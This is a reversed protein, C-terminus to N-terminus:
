TLKMEIALSEPKIAGICVLKDYTELGQFSDIVDLEEKSMESSSKGYNPPLWRKRQAAFQNFRRLIGEDKFTLHATGKKYLNVIFFESEIQKTEKNKLAFKIAESMKLYSDGGLPFKKVPEFYAIVKDIEDLERESSYSLSYSGYSIYNFGPLICKKNAKHASNTKWGNFHLINKKTEPYWSHQRTMKDFVDVVAEKIAFDYNNHLRAIFERLNKESFEMSTNRQLQAQYDSRRKATMKETIAPHDLLDLWYKRRLNKLYKSILVPIETEQDHDRADHSFVSLSLQDNFHKSSKAYQLIFKIGEERSVNYRSIVADVTESKVLGTEEEIINAHFKDEIVEPDLGFFDEVTRNINIYILAVKVNTKREADVFADEIIEVDANLEQLKRQLEKRKNSYPNLITEANLICVIQGNITINIAHLLHEDGNSFPPNMLILDFHDGGAYELFDNDLVKANLDVKDNRYPTSVKLSEIVACLERSKEIAYFEITRGSTRRNRAAVLLDGKGASPDLVSGVESFKKVKALMKDALVKPTPYFESDFMATRM